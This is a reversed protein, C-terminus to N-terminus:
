IWVVLAVVRVVLSSSPRGHVAAATASGVIIVVGSAPTVTIVIVWGSAAPNIGIVLAIVAIVPAVFILYDIIQFARISLTTVILTPIPFELSNKSVLFRALTTLFVVGSVMLFVDRFIPEIFRLIITSGFTFIRFTRIIYLFPRGLAARLAVQVFRIGAFSAVLGTVPISVGTAMIIVPSALVAVIVATIITVIVVIRIVLPIRVLVVSVSLIQIIRPFAIDVRALSVGIIVVAVISVIIIATIIWMVVNSAIVHGVSALASAPVLSIVSCFIVVSFVPTTIPASAIEVVTAAAASIGVVVTATVVVAYNKNL